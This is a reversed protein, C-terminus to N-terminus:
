LARWSMSGRRWKGHSCATGEGRDGHDGRRLHRQVPLRIPFPLTPRAGELPGERGGRARGLATTRTLGTKKLQSPNHNKFFRDMWPCWFSVNLFM